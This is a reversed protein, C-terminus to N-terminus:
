KVVAEKILIGLKYKGKEVEDKFIVANFGADDLSMKYQSSIDPRMKINTYATYFMDKDALTIFVSDGKNNQKGEVFAWGEVLLYKEKDKVNELFRILKKGRDQGPAPSSRFVIQKAFISLASDLKQKCAANLRNSLDIVAPKVNDKVFVYYYNDLANLQVRGTQLPFSFYNLYPAVTIYLINPSLTGEALTKNLSDNVIKIARSDSRAVYGINIPKRERAALFAFYQYDLNTFYHAQLPPYFTIEDFQKILTKWNKDIPPNYSGYSLNRFTLLLSTDYIQLVLAGIVIALRIIPQTNIRSAAIILFLIILYYPIWFFRASARFIDGLRVIQKPVPVSLLVKENLTIIHTLSFLAFLVILIFLPILNTNNLVIFSRRQQKGIRKVMHFVLVFVLLSLLGAGLYMFGEYQHWSVQKFDPLIKSFGSANYLSNLNLSYLGYAGQVGLDEKNKFDIFGVLYWVLLLSLVSGALYIFFYKKKIIIDFFVLKLPIIFTFGLTMFCIYPNVLASIVLLVLQWVLIRRSSVAPLFYLYISALFIWHACLAPHLGRYVLVPNAAIFVVALFTYVPNVKFLEFIKITFYAALIHCLYLWLGFYQFDEPLLPAFLKFFLALLPISDTFGVNTGVPAFYDHMSGLPFYWPENKYFYWGLYHTGWDHMATMLWSINTPILTQLGYCIHYIITVAIFSAILLKANKM